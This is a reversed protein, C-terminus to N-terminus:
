GLFLRALVVGVLAAFAIDGQAATYRVRHAAHARKAGAKYNGLTERNKDADPPNTFMIHGSVCHDEPKTQSSYLWTTDKTNVRINFM